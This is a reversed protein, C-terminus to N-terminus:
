RGTAGDVNRANKQPDAALDQPHRRNRLAAALMAM